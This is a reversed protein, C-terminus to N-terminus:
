SAARGHRRTRAADGRAGRAPAAGGETEVHASIQMRGGVGTSFLNAPHLARASAQTSACFRVCVQDSLTRCSTPDVRSAALIWMTGM